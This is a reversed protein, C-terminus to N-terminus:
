PVGRKDKSSSSSSSRRRYLMLVSTNRISAFLTRQSTRSAIKIYIICIVNLRWLVLECDLHLLRGGQVIGVIRLTATVFDVIM